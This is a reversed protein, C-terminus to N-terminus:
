TTNKLLKLHKVCKKIDREQTSKDGGHLLLIIKGKQFTYYVRLGFNSERLEFLSNGLPKSHPLGLENGLKELLLIEEYLAQFKTTGLLKFWKTLKKEDYYVVMWLTM